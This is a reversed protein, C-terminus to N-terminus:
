FFLLSGLLAGFLLVAGAEIVSRKWGNDGRFAESEPARGRASERKEGLLELARRVDSRSVQIKIEGTGGARRAGGPAREDVKLWKIGSSDLKGTVRLAEEDNRVTAVTVNGAQRKEAANAM